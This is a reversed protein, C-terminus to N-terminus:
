IFKISQAVVSQRFVKKESNNSSKFGTQIYGLVCIKSQLSAKKAKNSVNGFCVITPIATRGDRKVMVTLLTCTPTAEFVHVVTGKLLCENLDTYYPTANFAAELRDNEKDFSECVITVDKGKLKKSTQIVCHMTVRSGKTLTESAKKILEKDFVAIRPFDTKKTIPNTAAVTIFCVKSQVFMRVVNGRITVENTLEDKVDGSTKPTTKTKTKPSM